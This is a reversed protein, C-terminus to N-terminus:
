KKTESKNTILNLIEDRINMNKELKEKVADKGQGLKEGNYSFWTGSKQIINNEVAIDVIEGVQYVGSGYYIDFEATRFPPAVKNKVVKVRIRNGIIDNNDDKIQTIRRIDLRITSYYKLANGGTTTEPSGFMIGIKERLQNIFICTCNTKSILGTMKRLAQSM